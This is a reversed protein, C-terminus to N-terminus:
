ACHGWDFSDYMYPLEENDPYIFDLWESNSMSRVEGNVQRIMDPRWCLPRPSPVM